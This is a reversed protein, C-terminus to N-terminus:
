APEWWAIAGVLCLVAAVSMGVVLVWRKTRAFSYIGGIFFGALILLVFPLWSGSM